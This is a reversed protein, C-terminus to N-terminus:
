FNLKKHKQWEADTFAKIKVAHVTGDAIMDNLPQYVMQQRKVSRLGEFLPSVITINLYYNDEHEVILEDHEIADGVLQKIVELNM